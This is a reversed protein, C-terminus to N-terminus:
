SGKHCDNKEDLKRQAEAKRVYDPYIEYFDKAEGYEEAWKLVSEATQLKHTEEFNLSLGNFYDKKMRGEWHIIDQEFVSLGDGFFRFDLPMGSKEFYNDLVKSLLNFYEAPPYSNTKVLTQIKNDKLVFAGAYMQEMRADFIPCVVGRYAPNNYVFTELTPVAIVKAATVQAIARVSSIGIRIGTFSGPGQSVAMTKVQGLTLEASKLVTDTLPLLGKLHNLKEELIKQHINGQSDKLAVSAFPGTTDIALLPYNM